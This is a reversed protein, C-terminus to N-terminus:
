FSKGASKLSTETHLDNRKTEVVIKYEHPTMKSTIEDNADSFAYLQYSSKEYKVKM